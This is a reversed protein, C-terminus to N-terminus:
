KITAVLYTNVAKSGKGEIDELAYVRVAEITHASERNM